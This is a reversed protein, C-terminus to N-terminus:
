RHDRCRPAQPASSRHRRGAARRSSCSRTGLAPDVPAAQPAPGGAPVGPAVRVGPAALAAAPVPDGPRDASPWRAAARTRCRREHPVHVAVERPISSARRLRPLRRRASSGRTAAHEAATASGRARTQSHRVVIWNARRDQVLHATDRSPIMGLDRAAEALAPAAQAELVGRELAEKQQLLAQNTEEAHPGTSVFARCRRDVALPTVALGLGLAGIVLVSSRCGAVLRRPDREISSLESWCGSGCRYGFSRPRRPRVHRQEPRPKHPTRRGSRAGGLSGHSRAPRRLPDRHRQERTPANRSTTVAARRRRGQSPTSARNPTIADGTM